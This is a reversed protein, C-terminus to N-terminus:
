RGLFVIPNGSTKLTNQLESLDITGNRAPMFQSSAHPFAIPAAPALRYGNERSRKDVETRHKNIRENVEAQAQGNTKDRLLKNAKLAKEGLVELTSMSPDSSLARLGGKEGWFHMLYTNELSPNIKKQRQLDINKATNLLLLQLGRQPDRRQDLLPKDKRPDLRNGKKDEGGGDLGLYDRYLGLATGEIIQGLGVASSEDNEASPKGGSEASVIYPLYKQALNMSEFSPWKRRGFGQVNPTEYTAHEWWSPSASRGAYTQPDFKADDFRSTDNASSPPTVAQPSVPSNSGNAMPAFRGNFQAQTLGAIPPAASYPDRATQLWGPLAPSAQGQAALGTSAADAIPLPASPANGDSGPINVPPVPPAANAGGFLGGILPTDEDFYDLFGM